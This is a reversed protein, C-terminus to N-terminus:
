CLTADGTGGGILALQMESLAALTDATNDNVNPEQLLELM